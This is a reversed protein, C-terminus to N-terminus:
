CRIGLCPSRLLPGPMLAHQLRVWSVLFRVANLPQAFVRHTGGEFYSGHERCAMPVDASRLPVGAPTDVSRRCLAFREGGSTASRPTLMSGASGGCVSSPHVLSTRTGGVTRSCREKRRYSPAHVHAVQSARIVGM